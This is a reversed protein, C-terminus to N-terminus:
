INAQRANKLATAWWLLQDLMEPLKKQANKDLFNGQADFAQWILPIVVQEHMPAMQLEIAVQKLQEASRSGGATGGYSVFAVPKNNWEEYLHDLANKLVSSYGHNYEPTVFMYGDAKRITESWKKVLQERDKRMPASNPDDLFPLPWDRLDIFTFRMDERKALETKLWSFVNEGARGERASGLIVHISVM